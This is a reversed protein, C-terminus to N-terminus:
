ASYPGFLKCPACRTSETEAESVCKHKGYNVSAKDAAYASMNKVELRSMELKALPQNTISGSTENSDSYFDLLVHQIGEDFHFYMVVIPCCKTTGKNSANTAVSFPLLQKIKHLRYTVTGFLSRPRERM